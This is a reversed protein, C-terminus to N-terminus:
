QGDIWKTTKVHQMLKNGRYLNGPIYQHFGKTSETMEDIVVAAYRFMDACNHVIAGNKLSFHSVSPVTMDWVDEKYNLETVSEIRLPNVIQIVTSKVVETIESLVSSRKKVTYVIEKKERGNIGLNAEKRTEVIGYDEKLQNIGAQHKKGLSNLLIISERQNHRIGLLPYTTMYQCVNLTILDITPRIVIKTTYTVNRLFKVMRLNGFMGIFNKVGKQLINKMQSYVISVVMSFSHSLTLSSQILIDKTLGKASKWGKDTLFLHDPTCKVITGDNFQVAVLKANRRTIGVNIQKQWGELTLIEDNEHLDIIQKMGNRTLIETDGTFCHSTWDHLPTSKFIKKDEDYEKTYQPIAKLFEKCKVKDVWLRGFISRAQDIGNQVGINPVEDFDIGLEKATELRTKGTMLERQKIDHPAFHKAYIYEKGKIIKVYHQFGENSAEYYDIMHVEKGILQFFGIAMADSIGLDWVTYVPANPDYPVSCFREAKEAIDCERAYYAGQIAATFSCYYEQQILEESMGAKREEEIDEPTLIGTDDVTLLSVYWKPNDIAMNHLDYGHNKGRPTYNFIAWGGNELLIPRIFDWAKPNQLSYESFVCGIPNTGVIKDIDDTGIVQFLSGNKYRIKMETDNPKGDVLEEPFHHIYRFGDKGIGEWVVKKGQSYTPMLYYYIGVKEQMARAIINLDLKDKGCRRHWIQIIRNFGRDFAALIPIQYERPTFKYPLVIESAENPQIM